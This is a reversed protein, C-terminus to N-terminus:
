IEVLDDATARVHVNGRMMVLELRLASVAGIASDLLCM